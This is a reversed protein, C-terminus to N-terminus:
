QMGHQQQLIQTAQARTLKGAAFDAKVSEPTAYTKTTANTKGTPTTADFGDQRMSQAVYSERGNELSQLAVPDVHKSLGSLVTTAWRRDFDNNAKQFSVIQKMVDLPQTVSASARTMFTMMEQNTIKQGSLLQRVNHAGVVQAFKDLVGMDVLDNDPKGTIAAKMDLLAKYAPSGPGVDRPNVQNLRQQFPVIIANAQNTEAMKRMATSQVDKYNEKYSDIATQEQPNPTTRSRVPPLQAKPLTDLNIPNGDPGPLLQSQMAAAGQAPSTPAAGPRAGPPPAAGPPAPQAAGSPAPQAAPRPAGAKSVAENVATQFQARPVGTVSPSAGPVNNKDAVKTMWAKLNPSGEAAYRNQQSLTGDSNKVDVLENGKQALQAIQESSMGTKAAGTLKNGTVEDRWDGAADAVVKRGSYQHVTNAIHSAYARAADDEVVDDPIMKRIQEAAQPSIAELADLARGEPANVVGNTMTEYLNSADSQAQALRSDVGLQRRQKAAELLGPDGSLAAGTIDKMDQSTGAPNVFYRARLGADVRANDYWNAATPETAPNNPVGASPASPNNPNATIPRGATGPTAQLETGNGGTPVGSDDSQQNYDALAKLIVPMRAKMLQNQMNAGQTQQQILGTRANAETAQANTANTSALGQGFSTMLNGWDQVGVAPVDAMM